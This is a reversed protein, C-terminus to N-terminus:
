STCVLRFEDVLVEGDVMLFRGQAVFSAGTAPNRWPDEFEGMEVGDFATFTEKGHEMVFGASTHGTRRVRVDVGDDTENVWITFYITIEQEVGSCPDLDVFTTSDEFVVPDAAAPAAMVGLLMSVVALLTLIRRM